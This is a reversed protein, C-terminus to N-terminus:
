AGGMKKAQVATDTIQQRNAAHRKARREEEARAADYKSQVAGARGEAVRLQDGAVGARGNAVGLQQGVAGEAVGLMGRQAAQTSDYAGRRANEQAVDRDTVMGARRLALDARTTALATDQGRIGHLASTYAQQATNMEQARLAAAGAANAGANAGFNSLAQLRAAGRGAGRSANALSLAQNRGQALAASYQAQAASSGEGIAAARLHSLDDNQRGMLRNSGTLAETGGTDIDRITGAQHSTDAGQLARSYLMQASVGPISYGRNADQLAQDAQDYYGLGTDISNPDVKEEPLMNGVLPLNRAANVVDADNVGPLAQDPDVVPHGTADLITRAGGLESLGGTAVAAAGRKIWRGLSAM